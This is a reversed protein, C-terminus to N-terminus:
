GRALWSRLRDIPWTTIIREAPVGAAVASAAGYDLFDLQGPAHADTNLSFLCGADLALDILEEPPDRREPRSNIEVAVDHEACATFVRRADFRSPPRTGRDGDVLRGTCHGLIRTAPHEIARLMRRTMPGPEMRLQSHVSSVVVDLRDLMADSQDLTGDDLIDVEIGSLLSIDEHEADLRAIVDLQEDLREASLGNAVRLRPSHDTMALFRHGLRRATELMEEIPSGGDSWNSHTHLDGLLAPRLSEGGSALPEAGAERLDALYDPVRDDLAEYAVTATRPGIGDLKELQGNDARRRLEAPDLDALVGAARRFAEVRYTSARGRELWFATERLAEVPDM